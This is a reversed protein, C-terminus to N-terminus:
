GKGLMIKRAEKISIPNEAKCNTDTPAQKLVKVIESIESLNLYNFWILRFFIERISNVAGIWYGVSLGIVLVLVSLVGIGIFSM